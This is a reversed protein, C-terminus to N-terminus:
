AHCLTAPERRTRRSSHITLGLRLESLVKRSLIIVPQKKRSRPVKVVRVRQIRCGKPYAVALVHPPVALGALLARLDDDARPPPATPTAPAPTKRAWM